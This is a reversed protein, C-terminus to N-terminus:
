QIQNEEESELQSYMREVDDTFRYSFSRNEINFLIRLRIVAESFLNWKLPIPQINKSRSTDRLEEALQEPNPSVIFVKRCHLYESFYEFSISDDRSGDPQQSFTYGIFIVKNLYTRYRDLYSFFSSRSFESPEKRLMILRESFPAPIDFDALEQVEFSDFLEGLRPHSSGHPEQITVEEVNKLSLRALNDHNYNVISFPRQFKKFVEYSFFRQISNPLSLIYSVLWEGGREPISSIIAADLGDRFVGSEVIKKAISSTSRRPSYGGGDLWLSGIKRYFGNGPKIFEASAGAGLIFINNPECLTEIFSKPILRGM